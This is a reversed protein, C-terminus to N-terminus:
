AERVAQFLRIGDSYWQQVSRQRHRSREEDWYPPDDPDASPWHDIKDLPHYEDTWLEILAAIHWGLQDPIEVGAGETDNDPSVGIFLHVLANVTAVPWVDGATRDGRWDEKKVYGDLELSAIVDEM